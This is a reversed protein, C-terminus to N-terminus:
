TNIGQLHQTLLIISTLFIHCGNFLVLMHSDKLHWLWIDFVYIHPLSMQNQLCVFLYVLMLAISYNYFYLKNINMM